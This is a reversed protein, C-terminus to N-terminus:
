RRISFGFQIMHLDIGPNVPAHFGNSIHQWKYGIMIARGSERVIQIGGGGDFTFNFRAAGPEPVVKSFYLFGGSGNVFPQVTQTPRFNLKLGIPSLGAGYTHDRRRQATFSGSGTPVITIQNVSLVAVPVADITWSFALTQNQTLVRAYRLGISGFRADPTGGLWTPADVSISGWVGFENKKEALDSQQQGQTNAQQAASDPVILLFAFAFGCLLLLRNAIRTFRSVLLREFM